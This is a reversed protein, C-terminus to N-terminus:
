LGALVAEVARAREIWYSRAESPSRWRHKRRGSDQEEWIGPTHTDLPREANRTYEQLRLELFSRLARPDRPRYGPGSCGCSHFTQGAEYLSELTRWAKVARMKPPAFDQGMDAMPGQCQPCRFPKDEQPPLDGLLRRKYAKRCLFCAYHPMYPLAYRCM